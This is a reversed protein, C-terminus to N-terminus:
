KFLLKIFNMMEPILIKYNMRRFEISDKLMAPIALIRYQKKNAARIFEIDFLYRDITTDNFTAAVKRTFGKLGCQTDTIPISLLTRTMFRLTKSVLKRMYPVHKYYMDDKVGVALDCKDENLANYVKIFSELKYPFDIDTYIITDGEAQKVGCRIAYGKGRNVNNDIYIFEPIRQRLIDIHAETISIASGDNVLVVQITENIRKTLEQYNTIINSAWEDPPNYCPLIISLM